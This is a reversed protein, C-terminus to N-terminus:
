GGQTVVRRTAAALVWRGAALLCVAWLAQGGLVGLLEVGEVQQLYVDIPAQVTSAFPLVRAATELPEPFFAIPVVFGALFTWAAWLLNGVGRYDLLWFAALNAIFRISFSLCVALAVSLLFAAATLPNTPVHLEFFLSAIVFPPVGRFIFHYLARGLDQSLWYFQYDIPRFLDTVVDGSRISLAIDWWAWMYITMLLGQTLFTYTLTDQLDFGGVAGATVSYLEIFVYARLFGFISNTFIGALTAARYTAYRRYGRRAVQWYLALSSSLSDIPAIVVPDRRVQPSLRL